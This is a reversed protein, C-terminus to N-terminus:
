IFIYTKHIEPLIIISYSRTFYPSTKVIEFSFFVERYFSVNLSKRAALPSGFLREEMECHCFGALMLEKIASKRFTHVHTYVSVFM